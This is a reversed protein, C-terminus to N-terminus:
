VPMEFPLIVKLTPAHLEIGIRAFAEIFSDVFFNFYKFFGLVVLDLTVVAALIRRRESGLQEQTVRGM